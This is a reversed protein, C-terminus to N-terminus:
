VCLINSSEKNPCSPSETLTPLLDFSRTDLDKGCVGYAVDCRDRGERTRAGSQECWDAQCHISCSPDIRAAGDRAGRAPDTRM